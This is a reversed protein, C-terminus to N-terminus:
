VLFSTVLLPANLLHIGICFPLPVSRTTLHPWKLHWFSIRDWALWSSCFSPLWGVFGLGLWLFSWFEASFGWCRSFIGLYFVIMTDFNVPSAWVSKVSCFHAGSAFLPDPLHLVKCKCQFFFRWCRSLIRLPSTSLPISSLGYRCGVAIHTDLLNRLFEWLWLKPFRQAVSEWVLLGPSNEAHM